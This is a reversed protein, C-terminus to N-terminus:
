PLKGNTCEHKCKQISKDEDGAELSSGKSIEARSRSINREEETM